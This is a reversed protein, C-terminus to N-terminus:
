TKNCGLQFRRVKMRGDLALALVDFEEVYWLESVVAQLVYMVHLRVCQKRKDLSSSSYRVASSFVIAQEVYDCVEFGRIKSNLHDVLEHFFKLEDSPEQLSLLSLARLYSNM